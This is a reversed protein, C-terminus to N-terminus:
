RHRKDFRAALFDGALQVIQVLAILVIVVTLMVDPRFRQYGYRIGVDGLGGGGIAGVMASYGILSIATLTLGNIIASMAEPVLVKRIIQFPRAGMAQAAEILGPEVQRIAGEVIRAIFPIASITLPVMAATTGISTGALARTFPVIAVALIIFPISRAANVVISSVKNLWPAAFLEGRRSTALFIGIPGGVLTGLLLSVAVMYLTDWTANLLLNILQQSM